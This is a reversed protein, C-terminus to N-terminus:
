GNAAGMKRSQSHRKVHWAMSQVAQCLSLGHWRSNDADRCPQEWHSPAQLLDQLLGQLFYSHVSGRALARWVGACM